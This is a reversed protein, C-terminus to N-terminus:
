FFSFYQRYCINTLRDTLKNQAYLKYIPDLVGQFAFVYCHCHENMYLIFYQLNSYLYGLVSRLVDFLYMSVYLMKFHILLFLIDLIVLSRPRQPLPPSPSFPPFPSPLPITPVGFM